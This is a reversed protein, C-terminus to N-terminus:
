QYMFGNPEQNFTHFGVFLPVVLHHLSDAANEQYTMAVLFFEPLDFYFTSEDGDQPNVHIKM